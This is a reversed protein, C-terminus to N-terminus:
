RDHEPALPAAADPAPPSARALEPRPACCGAAELATAANRAEDEGYAPIEGLTHFNEWAIGQPDLIWAKRPRMAANRAKTAVAIDASTARDEVDDCNAPTEVQIGLHDLGAKPQGTSIAFNVRPDDLMWKAYDAEARGAGGRVADLLVRGVTWTTLRLM